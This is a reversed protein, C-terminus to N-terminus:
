EAKQGEPDPDPDDFLDPYNKHMAQIVSRIQDKKENPLADAAGSVIQVDIQKAM